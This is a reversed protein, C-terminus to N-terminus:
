IPLQFLAPPMSANLVKDFLLYIASPLLVCLVVNQIHKGRNLLSLTLALYIVTAVFGGFLRLLVAYGVALAILMAVEPWSGALASGPKSTDRVADAVAWVSFTILALGTVRPFFGPGLRGTKTLFSLEAFAIYTYFVSGALVALLFAIRM